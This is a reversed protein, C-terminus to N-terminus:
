ISQKANERYILHFRNNWMLIWLQYFFFFIFLKVCLFPSFFISIFFSHLLTYFDYNLEFASCQMCLFFFFFKLFIYHNLAHKSTTLKSHYSGTKMVWSGFNIPGVSSMKNPSWLEHKTIWNQHNLSEFFHTIFFSFLFVNWSNEFSMIQSETATVYILQRLPGRRWHMTVDGVVNEGEEKKRRWVWELAKKKKRM